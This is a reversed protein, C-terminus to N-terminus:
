LSDAPKEIKADRSNFFTYTSKCTQSIRHCSCELTLLNLLREGLSVSIADDAVPVVSTKWRRMILLNKSASPRVDGRDFIEKVSSKKSV